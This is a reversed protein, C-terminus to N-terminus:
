ETASIANIFETLDTNKNCTNVVHLSHLGGILLAIVGAIKNGVSREMVGICAAYVSCLKKM